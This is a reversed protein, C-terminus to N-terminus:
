IESGMLANGCGCSRKEPLQSIAKELIQRTNSINRSMTERIEEFSVPKEAWVDYDTITAIIAFCMEKERCLIAEPVGTMGILDAFQRYMRSSARTSFQPGEIRLYTGKDHFSIGLEGAVKAILRSMEPCFPDALSVHYLKGEDYFTHPTKSMDIFQDVIVIDGPKYEEKLSGTACTAFVRECGLEKLAWINAKWNVRHPPISHNEGHRPLFAIRRAQFLGTILGDSHSGYPTAISIKEINSVMAPDYVGTGGIIGIKAKEM